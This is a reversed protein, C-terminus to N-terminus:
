TNLIGAITADPYHEALRRVLAITDEDTRITAPRSRPLAVECDTLKGGCWRLKLHARFEERHVTISVEELLTRLM